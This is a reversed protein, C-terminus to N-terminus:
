AVPTPEASIVGQLNVPLIVFDDNTTYIPGGRRETAFLIIRFESDDSFRNAKRHWLDVSLQRAHKEHFDELTDVTLNTYKTEQDSYTVSGKRADLFVNGHKPHPIRERSDPLVPRAQLDSKLSHQIRSLFGNGDSIFYFHTAGFRQSLGPIAALDEVISCCFLWANFDYLHEHDMVHYEFPFTGDPRIADSPYGPAHPNSAILADLGKSPKRILLDLGRQGEERDMRTADEIERYHKFTGLKVTAKTPDIYPPPVDDSLFKVLYPM